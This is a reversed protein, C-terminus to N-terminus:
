AGYKEVWSVTHLLTTLARTVAECSYNIAFPPCSGRQVLDFDLKRDLMADDDVIVAGLVQGCLSPAVAHLDGAGTLVIVGKWNFTADGLRVVRPILLVGVGDVTAGGDIDFPGAGAEIRVVAPYDLSGYQHHGFGLNSSLHVVREDPLEDIRHLIDQVAVQLRSAEAASLTPALPMTAPDAALPGHNDPAPPLHAAPPNATARLAADALDLNLFCTPDSTLCSATQFRPAVGTGRVWFLGPTCPGANDSGDLFCFNNARTVIEQKLTNAAGVLDSQAASQVVAFPSLSPCSASLTGDPAHNRADVTFDPIRCGIGGSEDNFDAHMGDGTSTIAGAPAFDPLRTVEEVVRRTESPGTGVATLRYQGNGLSEITVAYTGNGLTAPGLSVPFALSPLNTALWNKGVEAGARALWLAQMGTLLNQSVFLDSRSLSLGNLSAIMLLAILLLTTILIVGAQSHGNGSAQDSSPPM